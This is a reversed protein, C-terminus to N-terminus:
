TLKLDSSPLPTPLWGRRDVRCGRARGRMGGDRVGEHVVVHGGFLDSVGEHLVVVLGEVGVGVPECAEVDTRACDVATERKEQRAIGMVRARWTRM